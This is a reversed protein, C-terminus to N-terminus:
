PVRPVPHRTSSYEGNHRRHIHTHTHIHTHSRATASNTSTPPPPPPPPPPSGVVVSPPDRPLPHFPPLTSVDALVSFNPLYSLPPAFRAGAPSGRRRKERGVCRLVVAVGRWAVGRWAIGHWAAGSCVCLCVCVCLRRCDCGSGCLVVVAVAVAVALVAARVDPRGLARTRRGRSQARTLETSLSM